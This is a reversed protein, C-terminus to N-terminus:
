KRTDVRRIESISLFSHWEPGLPGMKLVSPVPRWYPWGDYMGVQLVDGWGVRPWGGDTTAEWREGREIGDALTRLQEVEHPIMEPNHGARGHSNFDYDWDVPGLYEGRTVTVTETKM